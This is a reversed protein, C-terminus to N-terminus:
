EICNWNLHTSTFINNASTYVLACRNASDLHLLSLFPRLTSRLCRESVLRFILLNTYQWYPYCLKVNRAHQVEDVNLIIQLCSCIVEMINISKLTFTFKKGLANFYPINSGIKNWNMKALNLLSYFTLCGSPNTRIARVIFQSLLICSIRCSSCLIGFCRKHSLYELVKDQLRYIKM